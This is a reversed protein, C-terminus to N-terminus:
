CFSSLHASCRHGDLRADDLTVKQWARLSRRKSGQHRVDNVVLLRRGLPRNCWSADLAAFKNHLAYTPHRCTSAAQELMMWSSHLILPQRVMTSASNGYQAARLGKGMNTGFLLLKVFIDCVNLALRRAAALRPVQGGLRVLIERVTGATLVGQGCGGQTQRRITGSTVHGTRFHAVM